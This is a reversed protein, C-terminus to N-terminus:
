ALVEVPAFALRDCAVLRYLVGAHRGEFAVSQDEGHLHGFVCLEVGAASLLKSFPTDLRNRWLPPFHLMVVARDPNLRALAELGLQLRGM